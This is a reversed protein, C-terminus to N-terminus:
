YEDSPAFDGNRQWARRDDVALSLRKRYEYIDRDCIQRCGDDGRLEWDWHLSWEM